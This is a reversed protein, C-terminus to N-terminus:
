CYYDSWKNVEKWNKTKKWVGCTKNLLEVSASLSITPNTILYEKRRIEGKILDCDEYFDDWTDIDEWTDAKWSGCNKDALILGCEKYFDDWTNVDSWTDFKWSGCNNDPAIPPPCIYFDEWTNVTDWTDHEEWIGIKAVTNCQYFDEWADVEDWTDAVNWIGEKIKYPPERYFDEWTNVESWTSATAWVSYTPVNVNCGYFDNWTKADSWSNVNNWSRSIGLECSFISAEAHINRVRRLLTDHSLSLTAEAYLRRQTIINKYNCNYYDKWKNVTSWTNSYDWSECRANSSLVDVKAEVTLRTNKLIKTDDQLLPVTAETTFYTRYINSSGLIHLQGEANLLRNMNLNTDINVPLLIDFGIVTTKYKSLIYQPAIKTDSTLYFKLEKHFLNNKVVFTDGVVYGKVGETKRQVGNIHVSLFLDPEYSKVPLPFKLIAKRSIYYADIIYVQAIRDISYYYQNSNETWVNCDKWTNFKKKWSTAFCKDSLDEKYPVLKITNVNL